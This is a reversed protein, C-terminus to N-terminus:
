HIQILHPIDEKLLVGLGGRWGINVSAGDTGLGVMRTSWDAIGLKTLFKGLEKAIEAATTGNVEMLGLYVNESIGDDTLIRVYVIEQETTVKNTSGDLLIFFFAQGNIKSILAQQEVEAISTIFTLAADRNQYAKGLPLGNCEQQELLTPFSRLLLNHKVICYATRFLKSINTHQQKTLCAFVSNLPAKEPEKQVEHAEM